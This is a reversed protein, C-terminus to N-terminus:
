RRLLARLLALPEFDEAEAADGLRAWVQRVVPDLSQLVAVRSAAVRLSDLAVRLGDVGLALGISLPMPAMLVERRMVAAAWAGPRGDTQLERFTEVEAFCGFGVPAWREEVIHVLRPADDRWDASPPGLAVRLEDPGVLADFSAGRRRLVLATYLRNDEFLGLLMAKGDACVTDVASRVMAATPVPIGRLRPPWLELQGETALERAIVFLLLTQDTLDHDRQAREGFREMLEELAGFRAGLVWSANHERGLDGLPVPWSRPPELRGKVTHVIKHVRAGDHIVCLGGQPGVDKRGATARPAWLHLLRKWDQVTWGEFRVDATLMPPAYPFHNVRADPCAHTTPFNAHTSPTTRVFYVLETLSHVSGKAARSHAATDKLALHLELVAHDRRRAPRQLVLWFLWRARAGSAKGIPFRSSWLM